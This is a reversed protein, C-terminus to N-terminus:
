PHAGTAAQPVVSFHLAGSTVHGDQSLARWSVVYSGAALSPLGLTVEQAAQAPPMLKQRPESGHQIWAATLRAPESLKLVVQSPASHLVAGDAPTSQRVHAHAFADVTWTSLIAVLLVTTRM